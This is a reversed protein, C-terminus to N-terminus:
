VFGPYPEPNGEIVLALAEDYPVGHQEATCHALVEEPSETVLLTQSKFLPEVLHVVSNVEHTSKVFMPAVGCVNEYAVDIKMGSIHTLEM